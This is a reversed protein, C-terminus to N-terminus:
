PNETHVLTPRPTTVAGGARLDERGLLSADLREEGGGNPRRLAPLTPLAPLIVHLVDISGHLRGDAWLSQQKASQSLLVM